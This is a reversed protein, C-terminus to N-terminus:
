LSSSSMSRKTVVKRRKAHLDYIKQREITSIRRAHQGKAGADRRVAVIMSALETSM